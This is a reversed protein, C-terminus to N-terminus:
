RIRFLFLFVSFRRLVVVIIIISDIISIDIIINCQSM